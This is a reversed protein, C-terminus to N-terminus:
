DQEFVKGLAAPPQSRIVPLISRAIQHPLKELLKELWNSQTIVLLFIM